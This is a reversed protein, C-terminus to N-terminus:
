ASRLHLNCNVSISLFASSSSALSPFFFCFKCQTRYSTSPSGCTKRMAIWSEDLPAGTSHNCHRGSLTGLEAGQTSLFVGVDQMHMHIYIIFFNTISLIYTLAQVIVVIKELFLKWSMISQTSLFIGMDRMHMTSICPSPVPSPYSITACRGKQLNTLLRSCLILPLHKRLSTIKHSATITCVQIIQLSTVTIEKAQHRLQTKTKTVSIWM